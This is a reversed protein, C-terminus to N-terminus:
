HRNFTINATKLIMSNVACQASRKMTQKIERKDVKLHITQRAPWQISNGEIEEIVKGQQDKRLTNVQLRELIFHTM